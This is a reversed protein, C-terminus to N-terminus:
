KGDIERRLKLAHEAADLRDRYAPKDKERTKLAELHPIAEEYREDAELRAAFRDLLALSNPFREHGRRWVEVSEEGLGELATGWALWGSEREPPAASLRTAAARLWEPKAEPSVFEGAAVWVEPDDPLVHKMLEGPPLHEAARKVVPELRSRSRSLSERWDAWAAARDNRELAASGSLYWVDGDFGAVRKARDFHTAPPESKEFLHSFAGLRVHAAAVLPCLDRAKRAAKLGEVERGAAIHVAALQNWTEADSPWLRAAAELYQVATELYQTTAEPKARGAALKLQEVQYARWTELPLLVGVVAILAAATYASGGCLAVPKPESSAASAYGAVVAALLAVAPIHLGFDVTSHVAVAVLGFAVGLLMPGASRRRMRKAGALAIWVVSGALVVTLLMRVVGGEVLAELFENNAANVVLPGLQDTRFAQEARPLTGGGTGALWFREAAPYFMRWRVSRNESGLSSLREEVPGLGFWATLFVVLVAMAAALKGLGMGTKRGALLLVAGAILGAILGARSLSFPVTALMFGVATLLWVLRPSRVWDHHSGGLEDRYSTERLKRAASLLLGLGLGACLHIYYPYHNKNVFPGFVVNPAPFKGYLLSRAGGVTQGLALVGLLVGNVVAVWALRRFAHKSALLNRSVAYVLFAALSHVLFFQTAAPDISLKLGPPRPTQVEGPLAESVAPRLAHHWEAATPSLVRVVGEPLPVLQVVNVLVLGLLCASPIDPQYEFRGSVVAHAAWLLAVLGLGGFLLFTYLSETCGFAWPSLAVLSLLVFETAARLVRAAPSGPAPPSM